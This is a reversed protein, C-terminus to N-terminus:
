TCRCLGFATICSFNQAPMHSVLVLLCVSALPGPCQAHDQSRPPSTTLDATAIARCLGLSTVFASRPHFSVVSTATVSAPHRSHHRFPSPPSPQTRNRLRCPLLQPARPSAFLALASAAVPAVVAVAISAALRRRSPRDFPRPPTPEPPQTRPPTRCTSM